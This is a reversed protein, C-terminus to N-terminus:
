TLPDFHEVEPPAAFFEGIVARWEAFLPSERFAMHHEVSSWQVLLLYTSPSEIGRALSVEGVGDAQAIVARARPFAAEFDAEAGPRISLAGREIIM